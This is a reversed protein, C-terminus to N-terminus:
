NESHVGGGGCTHRSVQCFYHFIMWLGCSGNKADIVDDGFPVNADLNLNRATCLHIHDRLEAAVLDLADM